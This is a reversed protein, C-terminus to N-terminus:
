FQYSLGASVFGRYGVGFEAFGAFSKGIRLGVANVQFNFYSDNGDEINSGTTFDANQSTYGVAIGSYMQFWDKSIYHYESGFGVTIYRHTVDGITTGNDVVDETITQYSGDAYFFWKDKIAIKYMINFAPSVKSNTYSVDSILDSVTNLFGNSTGFGVGGSIEHTGKEQAYGSLALTFCFIGVFVTKM